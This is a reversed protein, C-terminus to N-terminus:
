ASSAEDLAPQEQVPELCLGSLWKINNATLEAWNLENHTEHLMNARLDFVVAPENADCGTNAIEAFERSAEASTVQDKGGHVLRVPIGLQKVRRANQIAYDGAERAGSFLTYSIKGHVKGKPDDREQAYQAQVAPDASVKEPDLDSEIVFKPYILHILWAAAVLLPKPPESLRLWPSTVLYGSLKPLSAKAGVEKLLYNLALGGGFSHAWIFQNAVAHSNIEQFFQMDSAQVRVTNLDDLFHQYSPAFGRPGSSDGHGRHDYGIVCFGAETLTEALRQFRLAYEGFGHVLWVIGKQASVEPLWAYGQLSTQDAPTIFFQLPTM